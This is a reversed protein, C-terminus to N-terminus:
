PNRRLAVIPAREGGPEAPLEVYNQRIWDRIREGYGAGFEGQGDVPDLNMPVDADYEVGSHIGRLCRVYSM